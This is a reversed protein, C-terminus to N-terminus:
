GTQAGARSLQQLATRLAAAAQAAAEAFDEGSSAHGIGRSSNILYVGSGGNGKAARVAEGLDAGQAGTGPILIPLDVAVERIRAIETPWTAGAVLGLNGRSNWEVARRAVELYLPHPPAGVSLDQLDQAGRNSTRCLIFAFRDERALFPELSDAGLYPSVTCADAGLYNYIAESYAVATSGIDGRKADAIVPAHRGAAEVVEALVEFGRGGFREYFALNPKYAAAFPSTAEVVALSHLRVAEIGEGLSKPIQDPDPDLGVCLAAGRDAISEALRERFPGRSM